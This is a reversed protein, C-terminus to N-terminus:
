RKRVKEAALTPAGPTPFIPGSVSVADGPNLSSTGAANEFVTAFQTAVQLNSTGAATFTAPLSGLVFFPDTVSLVQGTLQASALTIRDTTVLAATSGALARAKLEQGVLLDGSGTFFGADSALNLATFDIQFTAQPEIGVTVAAGPALGTGGFAPNGLVTHAVLTLESAALDVAVIQGKVQETGPADELVVALATLGGGTALSLSAEVPQNAALCSFGNACGIQDFGEFLTTSDSAIALTLGEPTKLTFQSAGVSTVTGEVGDLEALEGQVPQFQGLLFGGTASLNLSLDSQIISGPVVEIGLGIPNNQALTLPFPSSSFTITVPSIAPAIRCVTGNACGSISAGSDNVVTLAPKAITLTLSTYNGTPVAGTGLLGVLTQLQSVEFTVPGSMLSVNGPQLEVQTIELEFAELAVGTPLGPSAADTLMLSVAATGPPTPGPATKVPKGCGAVVAASAVAALLILRRRKM